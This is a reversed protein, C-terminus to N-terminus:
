RGAENEDVPSQQDQGRTVRARMGGRGEEEGGGGEGDDREGEGQAGGGVRDAEEGRDVQREGRERGPGEHGRAVRPAAEDRDEGERAQVERRSRLEERGPAGGVARLSREQQGIEPGRPAGEFGAAQAVGVGGVA